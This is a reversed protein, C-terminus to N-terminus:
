NEGEFRPWIQQLTMPPDRCIWVPLDREEPVVWTGEIRTALELDGCFPALEEASGGVKVVVDGPLDGPGWFWYSGVPAVARPLEHAPGYFDIAGAQGYNGAVIVARQRDEPPLSHWVRAIREVKPEWGMMDAYDQPLELVEGTNTVTAQTLGLRDAFAATRAPPLIPLVLPLVSLGWAAILLMAVAGAALMAPRRLRHAARVAFVAGAAYLTPFVPGVYYAKGRLLLIVAFAVLCSWGVVRWRVFDRHALLAWAGAAALAFALPGHMLVLELWWEVWGIRELQTAQLDGMQTLFPFGLAFQGALSPLGILLGIGLAIWPGPQGLWERRAVVLAALVGIGLFGISFKTMLGLGAAIGLGIWAARAPVAAAQPRRVLIREGYGPRGIPRADARNGPIGAAAVLAALAATWWLQDFVVPQFLTGARLFLPATAVPTIALVQALGGGGLAWAIWGTALVLGGHALAPSIRLAFLSDGFLGRQLEALIAILPPFDMAFLRLHEGMAMYLFEDRHFEYPTILAVVVHVLVVLVATVTLLPVQLRPM